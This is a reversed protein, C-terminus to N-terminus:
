VQRGRSEEELLLFVIQNVVLFWYSWMREWESDDEGVVDEVERKM